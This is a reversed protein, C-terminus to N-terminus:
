VSKVEVLFKQGNLLVLSIGTEERKVKAVFYEKMAAELSSIMDDQTITSKMETNKM